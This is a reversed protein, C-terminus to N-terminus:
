TISRVLINLFEQLDAGGWSGSEYDTPRHNSDVGGWSRFRQDLPQYRAVLRLTSGLHGAHTGCRVPTKGPRNCLDNCLLLVVGRALPARTGDSIHAFPLEIWLPSADYRRPQSLEAHTPDEDGFRLTAVDDIPM